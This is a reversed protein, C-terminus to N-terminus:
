NQGIVQLIKAVQTAGQEVELVAKGIEFHRNINDYRVYPTTFYKGYVKSDDIHLGIQQCACFEAKAVNWLEDDVHFSGDAAIEVKNQANFYDFICWLKDYVINHEDLFREIYERPGGSVIYIEWGARRWLQILNRFFEPEKTIVGHFDVSIRKYNMMKM